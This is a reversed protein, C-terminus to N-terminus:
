VMYFTIRVNATVGFVCESQDLYPNINNGPLNFLIGRAEVDKAKLIIPGTDSGEKICVVDNITSPNFLISWVHLGNPHNTQCNWDLGGDPTVTLFNNVFTETASM